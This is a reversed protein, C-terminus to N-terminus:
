AASEAADPEDEDAGELSRGTKALFVDDLTPAQLELNAVELGEADLARVVEPLGALGERLRVAVDRTGGDVSEGFPALAADLRERDSGRGADGRREAARDRGQASRRERPSSRATTSSGSGTPM